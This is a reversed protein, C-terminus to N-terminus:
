ADIKEQGQISMETRPHAVINLRDAADKLWQSGGPTVDHYPMAPDQGIDHAPANM